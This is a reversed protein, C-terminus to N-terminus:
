HAVMGGKSDNKPGQREPMSSEQADGKELIAKIVDDENSTGFENELQGKPASDYAGQAGQNHTVFIKFASVFHALPVSKDGQWKKYTELDDVFVLYDDDSGKYHIKVQTAGGKM